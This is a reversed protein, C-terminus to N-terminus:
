QWLGLPGALLVRSYTRGGVRVSDITPDTTVVACPAKAASGLKSTENRVGVHEFTVRYQTLAWLPYEWNDGGIMVGAERCSSALLASAVTKYPMEMDPRGVFMLRARDVAFVSSSGLIPHSSNFLLFPMAQIFLLAALMTKGWRPLYWDIVLAVCPLALLFLPLHLRSHWPQWRLFFCFLLFGLVVCLSYPRLAHIGRTSWFLLIPLAAIMLSFHVFNGADDEFISFRPQFETGPWTVSPDDQEVGLRRQFELTADTVVRNWTGLPVAGIHLATNRALVTLFGAIDHRTSAVSYGPEPNVPLPTGFASMSRWAVGSLMVLVIAATMLMRSYLAPKRLLLLAYWILFPAAWIAASPKTLIALGLSAGAYAYLAVSPDELLLLTFLAFCVLWFATVLDNQTSTAQLIAMPITVALLCAFWEARVGGKWIRVIASVGAACGILSFFQPLASLRDGGSLLFTHLIVMESFPFLYLERLVDTPFFGLNQHAKWHMVRSMHYTMSDWNNPAAALAVSALLLLVGFVAFAMLFPSLERFDPWRKNFALLLLLLAGIWCGAVFVPTLRNISGLVETVAWLFVGFLTTTKMLRIRFDEGPNRSKLVSFLLYISSIFILFASPLLWNM